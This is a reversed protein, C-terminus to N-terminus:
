APEKQADRRLHVVNRIKEVVPAVDTLVDHNTVRLVTYGALLLRYDRDRDAYYKKRERHDDGDLEVVLRGDAWLLDGRYTCERFGHVRRNRQFLGALEADSTLREHLRQESPSGPHPRGVPPEVLVRPQDPPLPTEDVPEDDATVQVADYNVSDLEPSAAWADPLLLLLVCAAQTALWDAARALTYMRTPTAEPSSVALIVIPGSPDLALALQRLQAASSM